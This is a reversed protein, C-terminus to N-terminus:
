GLKFLAQLFEVVAKRSEAATTPNGGVHPNLEVCADKYTFPANTDANMLVGGDGERIHCNRVTQANASVTVTSVGLLGSDFGHASDPYETLAVDRGAAKLREVLAKCSKVPNYDDPTGHFIRIPRAGVETDSQYTTSCDPYFPIYAAFQVGSKNWLKNFRDLSAYLTAQGGRSFGMLVIRDPDVRPHKALIELSRYTDIILNLRGLLAQNPGTVTLGRGTFGDIVFTSIGMANFERVWADTTAGVGSSGHMLVVVPMKGTGQAVRFEGAVTVPKGSAADGSLFQQDSLTLSPIPFIETRAPSDKPLSQAGALGASACLAILTVAVRFATPM